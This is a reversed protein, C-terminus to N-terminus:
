ARAALQGGGDVAGLQLLHGRGHVVCIVGLVVLGRLATLEEHGEEAAAVAERTLGVQAARRDDLYPDVLLGVGHHTMTLISWRWPTAM